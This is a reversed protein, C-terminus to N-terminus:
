NNNLKAAANTIRANIVEVEKGIKFASLIWGIGFLGCTFLHLLGKGTKGLYFWEAGILGLFFWLAFAVGKSKM